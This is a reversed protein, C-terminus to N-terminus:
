PGGSDPEGDAPVVRLASGLHNTLARDVSEARFAELNDGVAARLGDLHAETTRLEVFSVDTVRVALAEAVLDRFHDPNALEGRWLHDRFFLWGDQGPPDARKYLTTEFRAPEVALDATGPELRFAVSFVYRATAEVSPDPGM